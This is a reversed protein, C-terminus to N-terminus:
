NSNRRLGVLTLAGGCLLVLSSPEPVATTINAAGTFLGQWTLFDVGDIDGDLDTDGDTFLAGTTTGYGNELIALDDGDTDGDLDFDGLTTNAFGPDTVLQIIDLRDIEGDANLDFMHQADAFGISTGFAAQLANADNPDLGNADDFDGHIGSGGPDSVVLNALTVANEIVGVGLSNDDYVADWTYTVGAYESIVTGTGLRDIVRHPFNSQSRDPDFFVGDQSQSEPFATIRSGINDATFLVQEDASGVAGSGATTPEAIKV